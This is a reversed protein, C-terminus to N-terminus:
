MMMMMMMNFSTIIVDDDITSVTCLQQKECIHVFVIYTGFCDKSSGFHKGVIYLQAENSQVGQM